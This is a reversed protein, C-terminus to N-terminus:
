QRSCIMSKFVFEMRLSASFVSVPRECSPISNQAKCPMTKCPMTSFPSFCSHLHEIMSKFVFESRLSASFVSV